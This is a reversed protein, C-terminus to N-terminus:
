ASDGFSALRVHLCVAELAVFGSKQDTRNGDQKEKAQQPKEYIEYHDFM